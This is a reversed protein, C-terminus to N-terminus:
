SSHVYQIRVSRFETDQKVVRARGPYQIVLDNSSAWRVAVSIQGKSGVSVAGNNDDAVFVHVPRQMAYLALQRSFWNAKVVSVGTSFGTMAGGNRVVLIADWKGDPSVSNAVVTTGLRVYGGCAGLTCLVLLIVVSSWRLARRNKSTVHTRM